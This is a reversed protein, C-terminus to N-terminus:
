NNELMKKQIRTLNINKDTPYLNPDKLNEIKNLLTVIEVLDVSSDGNMLSSISSKLEQLEFDDAIVQPNVYVNCRHYADEVVVLKGSTVLKPYRYAFHM